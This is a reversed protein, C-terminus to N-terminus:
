PAAGFDPRAPVRGSGRRRRIWRILVLLTGGVVLIYFSGVVISAVFIEVEYACGSDAFRAFRDGTQLGDKTRYLDPSLDSPQFILWEDSVIVAYRSGSILVREPSMQISHVARGGELEVRTLPGASALLEDDLENQADGRVRFLRVQSLDESGCPVFLVEIRDRSPARVAIEGNDDACSTLLLFVLISAASRRSAMM